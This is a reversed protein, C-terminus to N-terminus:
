SAKKLQRVKAILDTADKMAQTQKVNEPNNVRAKPVYDFGLRESYEAKAESLFEDNAKIQELMKQLAVNDKQMQVDQVESGNYDRKSQSVRYAISSALDVAIDNAIQTGRIMNELCGKVPTYTDSTPNESLAYGDFHDTIIKIATRLKKM